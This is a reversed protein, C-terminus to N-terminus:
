VQDGFCFYELFGTKLVRFDLYWRCFALFPPVNKKNFLSGFRGLGELPVVKQCSAFGPLAFFQSIKHVHAKVPSAPSPNPAKPAFIAFKFFDINQSKELNEHNKSM